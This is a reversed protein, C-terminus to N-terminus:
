PPADAAHRALMPRADETISADYTQRLERDAYMFLSHPAACEAVQAQRVSCRDFPSLTDNDADAIEPPTEILTCELGFPILDHACSQESM